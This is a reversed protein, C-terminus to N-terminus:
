LRTLPLPLVTLLAVTPGGVAGRAAFWRRRCHCTSMTSVDTSLPECGVPDVGTDSARVIRVDRGAKFIYSQPSPRMLRGVAEKPVVDSGAGEGDRLEDLGSCAGIRANFCYLGV